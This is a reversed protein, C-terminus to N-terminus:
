DRNTLSMGFGSTTVTVTSGLTQTWSDLEQTRLATLAEAYLPNQGEGVYYMVHAGYQTEVVGTDGPKRTEDFCWDNFTEVMQGPTVGEYIGGQAANGDASYTKALEGFAEETQEGAQYEALIEDAKAKAQEATTQEDTRILIHRVDVTEMTDYKTWNDVFQVVTWEDGSQIATTEGATRSPDTLWDHLEAPVANLKQDSVLTSDDLESDTPEEGTEANPESHARVQELYATESGQAAEAFTNAESETDLYFTRYSVTDIEERHAEYYERIEDDSFQTSESHATGYLEATRTVELYERYRDVDCGMGFAATLYAEGNSYGFYGAYTDLSGIESELADRQASTMVFGNKQAEDYVAYTKAMEENTLSELMEAPSGPNRQSVTGYFFNYMAPSVKHTGVTAATTNHHLIGSNLIGFFIAAVALVVVFVGGAIWAGRGTGKDEPKPAAPQNTDQRRKKKQQSASM